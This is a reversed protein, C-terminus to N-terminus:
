VHARGIQLSCLGAFNRSSIAGPSTRLRMNGPLQAWYAAELALDESAGVAGSDAIDAHAQAKVAALAKRSDAFVMLSLHHSGMVFRNSMLDDAAQSLGDIQSHAKDGASVMLNQKRNIRKLGAPKSLPAFTQTLVFCYPASLLVNFHGPWTVAPYEKIRFGAVYTTSDPHWIRITDRECIARDTYICDGLGANMLPVKSQRGTLVLKLAEGIETYLSRGERRLGLRRLGYPKLEAEIMLLTESLRALRDESAEVVPKTKRAWLERIGDGFVGPPLLQVFLFLRNRYLRGNLLHARYAADLSRAFESRFIGTPYESTDAMTRVLHTTLVIRDSSINRILMNLHNVWANVEGPDATDAHRGDVEFGALDSGGQLLVVDPRIHQVYPIYESAPVEGAGRKSGKFM